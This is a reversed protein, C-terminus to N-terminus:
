LLERKKQEFEDQTIVGMDLLEKLAKIGKLADTANQSADHITQKEFIQFCKLQSDIMTNCGIVISVLEGTVTNQLKLTAPTLIEIQRQISNTTSHEIKTKMKKGGAGIAAGVATGVGPMLLTGIIAGTAMKGSKGKTNEQGKTNTITNSTIEYQAGSWEYGILVYKDQYNANFYITGDSRQFMTSQPSAGIQQFGSNIPFMVRTMKQQEAEIQKLEAQKDIEAKVLDTTKEAVDKFFKSFGM